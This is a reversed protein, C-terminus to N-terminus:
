RHTRTLRSSVELAAQEALRASRDSDSTAVRSAIIGPTM